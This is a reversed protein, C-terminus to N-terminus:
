SAVVLVEILEVETWGIETRFLELLLISVKM